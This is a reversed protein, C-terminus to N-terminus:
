EKGKEPKENPKEFPIVNTKKQSEEEAKQNAVLANAKDLQTAKGFLMQEGRVIAGLENGTLSMGNILIRGNLLVNQLDRHAVDTPNQQVQVPNM